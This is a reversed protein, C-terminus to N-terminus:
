LISSFPCFVGKCLVQMSVTNRVTYFHRQHWTLLNNGISFEIGYPSVFDKL